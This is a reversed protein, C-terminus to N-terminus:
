QNRKVMGVILGVLFTKFIISILSITGLIFPSAFYSSSNRLFDAEEENMGETQIKAEMEAKMNAKMEPIFETQIWEYHIFTYIGYILGGIVGISLGLKIATTLDLQNGNDNKYLHIAYWVIGVNVIFNLISIIYNSEIDLAYILVLVLISYAGFIIGFDKAYPKVPLDENQM